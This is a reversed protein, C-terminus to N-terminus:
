NAERANRAQTAKLGNTLMQHAHPATGSLYLLRDCGRGALVIVCAVGVEALTLCVELGAEKIAEIQDDTLDDSM